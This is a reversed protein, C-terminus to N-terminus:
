AAERAADRCALDRREDADTIALSRARREAMALLERGAALLERLEAALRTPTDGREAILM